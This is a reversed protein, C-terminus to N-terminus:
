LLINRNKSYLPPPFNHLPYAYDEIIILLRVVDEAIFMRQRLVDHFLLPIAATKKTYGYFHFTTKNLSDTIITPLIWM